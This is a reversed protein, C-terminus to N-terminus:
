GKVSTIDVNASQLAETITKALKPAGPTDGHICVTEAELKVDEGENTIVRGETVIRVVREAMKDYDEIASGKRTMVISGEKTHERDAYAEKAVPVGMKQAEEYVESRALSFVVMNPDAEHVAELITRALDRDRMAKMFLAGHPKCHQLQIDEARAFERLAGMQYTVYDKVESATAAMDRRGFGLLDPFGPHAGIKVDYEKALKVTKRMVHPDGGHYGCAINASTIYQMMEEDNGLVYQSFSEGMDCNLDIKAM